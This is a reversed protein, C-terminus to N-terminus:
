VQVVVVVCGMAFIGTAVLLWFCACRQVFGSPNTKLSKWQSWQVFLFSCRENLMMSEHSSIKAEGARGIGNFMTIVKSLDRFEGNQAFASSCVEHRTNRDTDRMSGESFNDTDFLVTRQSNVRPLPFGAKPLDSEDAGEMMVRQHQDRLKKKWQQVDDEPFL